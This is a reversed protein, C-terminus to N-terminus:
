RVLVPGVKGTEINYGPRVKPKDPQNAGKYFYHEPDQDLQELAAKVRNIANEKSQGQLRPNNNYRDLTEELRKREMQIMREDVRSQAVANGTISGVFLVLLVVALRKIMRDERKYAEGM